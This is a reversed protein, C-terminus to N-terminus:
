QTHQTHQGFVAGLVFLEYQIALPLISLLPMSHTIANEEYRMTATGSAHQTNRHMAYTCLRRLVKTLNKGTCLSTYRTSM